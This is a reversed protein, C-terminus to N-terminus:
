GLTKNRTCGCVGGGPLFGWDYSLLTDKVREKANDVWGEMEKFVDGDVVDGKMTNWTATLAIFSRELDMRMTRLYRTQWLDISVAAAHRDLFGQIEVIRAEIHVRYKKTVDAVNATWQGTPLLMKTVKGTRENMGLRPAICEWPEEASQAM